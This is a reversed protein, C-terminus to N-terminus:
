LCDVCHSHISHCNHPHSPYIVKDLMMEEHNSLNKKCQNSARFWQGVWAVVKKDTSVEEKNRFCWMEDGMYLRDLM